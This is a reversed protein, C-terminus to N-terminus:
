SEVQMKASAMPAYPNTLHWLQGMLCIDGGRSPSLIVQQLASLTQHLLEFQCLHPCVWLLAVLPTDDSM